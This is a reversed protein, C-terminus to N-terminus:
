ANLHSAVHSRAAPSAPLADPAPAPAFQAELKKRAGLYHITHNVSDVAVLQDRRYYEISFQGSAEDGVLFSADHGHPWGAMQLRASFQETWFWPLARYPTAVGSAITLAATRAQDLVNQVSELRIGGVAYPAPFRACDGIAFINPDSVSQLTQTVTFGDDAAIAAERALGCNPTVGIGALVLDCELRTGDALLAHSVVGEGGKLAALSQGTLVQVGHSQHLRLFYSSVLPSVARAMLRPALEVVTVQCGIEAAVAAVELGVFGGGAVLLRAGPKLARRLVTADSVTRLVHVGQLRAGECQLARPRAGTALVLHSYGLQAGQSLTVRRTRRDIGVVKEGLRVDVGQQRFHQLPKFALDDAARPGKLFGKSLPPRPYPLFLEDGVLTIAGSFGHGRLSSALQFGGQGAGAVVVHADTPHCCSIPQQCEPSM